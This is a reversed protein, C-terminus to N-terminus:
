ELFAATILTNKSFNSMTIKCFVFHRVYDILWTLVAAFFVNELAFDILAFIVTNIFVVMWEHGIYLCEKFGCDSDRFVLPNAKFGPIRLGNLGFYKHSFTKDFCNDKKSSVNALVSKLIQEIMKKSGEIKEFDVSLPFTMMKMIESNDPNFARNKVNQNLKQSQFQYNQQKKFDELQNFHQNTARFESNGDSNFLEENSRSDVAFDLNNFTDVEKIKSGKGFRDVNASFKNMENQNKMFIQGNEFSNLKQIIENKLQFSYINEYIQQFESPFLIEFTQLESQDNEILGRKKFYGKSEKELVDEFESLAYESTGSNSEGHFYFARHKETFVLMSINVLTLFDIYNQVSQGNLHDKIKTLFLIIIASILFASIDIGFSLIINMNKSEEFEYKYTNMKAFDLLFILVALLYITDINKSTAIKLFHKGVISFRWGSTIQAKSQSTESPDDQLVSPIHIELKKKELDLLFYEYNSVVILKEIFLILGLVLTFVVFAFFANMMTKNFQSIPFIYMTTFDGHKMIVFIISVFAISAFSMEFFSKVAILFYRFFNFSCDTSNYIHNPTSRCLAICRFIMLAISLFVAIVFGIIIVINFEISKDINTFIMNFDVNEVKKESDTINLYQYVAIGFLLIKGSSERQLRLELNSCYSILNNTLLSSSNTTNYLQNNILFIRTQFLYGSLDSFSSNIASTNSTLVFPIKQIKFRDDKIFLEVFEIETSILNSLDLRCKKSINEGVKLSESLKICFFYNGLKNTTKLITGNLFYTIIFLELDAKKPVFSFTLNSSKINIPNIISWNISSQSTTMNSQMFNSINEYKQVIFNYIKCLGNTQDYLTLVCLNLIMNCATSNFNFMCESITFHYSPFITTLFQQGTLANIPNSVLLTSNIPFLAEINNYNSALICTNSINLSHQDCIIGSATPNTNINAPLCINSISDSYFGNQCAICESYGTETGNPAIQSFIEIVTNCLCSGKCPVCTSASISPLATSICPTSTSNSSTYITQHSSSTSPLTAVTQSTLLIAPFSCSVHSKSQFTNSQCDLCTSTMFDFFQNSNNGCLLANQLKFVLLLLITKFYNKHNNKQIKQTKESM